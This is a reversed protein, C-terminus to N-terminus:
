MVGLSSRSSRSSNRCRRWSTFVAVDFLDAIRASGVLYLTRNGTLQKDM